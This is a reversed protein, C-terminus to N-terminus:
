RVNEKENCRQNKYVVRKKKKCYLGIFTRCTGSGDQLKDPWEAYKCELDCWEIKKSVIGM